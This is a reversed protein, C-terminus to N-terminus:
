AFEEILQAADPYQRRLNEMTGGTYDSYEFGPAVICAFLAWADATENCLRTAQWTGAPIVSHLEAPGDGSWGLKRETWQGDAFLLLQRSSSGALFLWIEDAAVAHFASRQGGRLLYYIITACSRSRAAAAPTTARYIERFVGGEHALPELKLQAAIVDASLANMLHM